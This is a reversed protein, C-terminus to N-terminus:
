SFDRGYCFIENSTINSAIKAVGSIASTFSFNTKIKKYKYIEVYNCGELALLSHIM